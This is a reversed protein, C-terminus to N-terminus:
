QYIAQDNQDLFKNERDRVRYFAKQSMLPYKADIISPHDIIANNLIDPCSVTYKYLMGKDCKCVFNFLRLQTAHKLMAGIASLEDERLEFCVGSHINIEIKLGTHSALAQIKCM